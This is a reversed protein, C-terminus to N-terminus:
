KVRKIIIFLHRWKNLSMFRTLDSLRVCKIVQENTKPIHCPHPPSPATSADSSWTESHHQRLSHHWTHPRYPPRQAPWPAAPSNSLSPPRRTRAAAAQNSSPRSWSAQSRFDWCPLVIQTRWEFDLITFTVLSTYNIRRKKFGNGFIEVKGFKM